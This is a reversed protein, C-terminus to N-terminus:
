KKRSNTRQQDEIQSKVSDSWEICQKLAIRTREADAIIEVLNRSVETSFKSALVDATDRLATRASEAAQTRSSDIARETSQQVSDSLANNFDTSWKEIENKQEKLSTNVEDKVNNLSIFVNQIYEDQRRNAELQKDKIEVITAKLEVIDAKYALNKYIMFNTFVMMLVLLAAIGALTKNGIIWKIM